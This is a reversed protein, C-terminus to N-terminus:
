AGTPSRSWGEANWMGEPAYVGIAKVAEPEYLLCITSGVSRLPRLGVEVNTLNLKM